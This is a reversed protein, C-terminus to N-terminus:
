KDSVMKWEGYRVTDGDITVTREFKLSDSSVSEEKYNDRLDQTKIVKLGFCEGPREYLDCPSDCLSCYDRWKGDIEFWIHQNFPCDETFLPMEDVFFKM